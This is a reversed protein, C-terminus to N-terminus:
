TRAEEDAIMHMHNILSNTSRDRRHLPNIISLEHHNIQMHSILAYNTDVNIAMRNSQHSSSTVQAIIPDSTSRCRNHQITADRKIQNISANLGLKSNLFGKDFSEEIFRRCGEPQVKCKAFIADWSVKATSKFFRGDHDKVWSIIMLDTPIM